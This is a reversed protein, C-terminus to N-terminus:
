WGGAGVVVLILAMIGFFILRDVTERLSKPASM